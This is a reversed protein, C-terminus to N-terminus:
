AGTPRFLPVSILSHYSKQSLDFIFILILNTGLPSLFDELEALNDETQKVLAGHSLWLAEAFDREASSCCNGVQM